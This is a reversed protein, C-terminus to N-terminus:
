GEEQIGMANLLFKYLEDATDEVQPVFRLKYSGFNAIDLDIAGYNESFEHVIM